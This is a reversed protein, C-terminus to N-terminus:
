VIWRYSFPKQLSLVNQQLQRCVQINKLTLNSRTLMGTFSKEAILRILAQPNRM